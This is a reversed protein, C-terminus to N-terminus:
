QEVLPMGDGKADGTPAADPPAADNVGSGMGDPRVTADPRPKGDFEVCGGLALALAGLTFARYARIFWRM